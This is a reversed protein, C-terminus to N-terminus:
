HGPMPMSMSGTVSRTWKGPLVEQRSDDIPKDGWDISPHAYFKQDDRHKQRDDESNLDLCFELANRVEQLNFGTIHPSQANVTYGGQMRTQPELQVNACSVVCTLLFVSSAGVQLPIQM